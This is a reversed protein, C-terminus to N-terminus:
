RQKIARDRFDAVEMGEKKKKLIKLNHSAFILKDLPEFGSQMHKWIDEHSSGVKIHLTYAKDMEQLAKISEKKMTAIAIANETDEELEKIKPLIETWVRIFSTRVTASNQM